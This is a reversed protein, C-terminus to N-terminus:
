KINQLSPLNGIISSFFMSCAHALFARSSALSPLVLLYNLRERWAWGTGACINHPAWQWLQSFTKWRGRSKRLSWAHLHELAWGSERFTAGLVAAIRSICLATHSRTASWSHRKKWPTHIGRFKQIQFDTPHEVVPKTFPHPFFSSLFLFRSRRHCVFTKGVTHVPCPSCCVARTCM